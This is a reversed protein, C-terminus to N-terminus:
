WCRMSQTLLSFVEWNKARISAALMQSVAFNSELLLVKM